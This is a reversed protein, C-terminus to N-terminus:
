ATGYRGIPVDMCQNMAPRVEAFVAMMAEILDIGSMARVEAEALPFYVQVGCWERDPAQEVLARLRSAGPLSRARAARSEGTLSLAGGFVHPDAWSGLRLEFQEEDVLRKLERYLGARPTLGAVLRHWDWDPRLRFGREDRSARVYGREVQM